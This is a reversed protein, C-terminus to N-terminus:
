FSLALNTSHTVDMVYAACRRCYNKLMIKPGLPAVFHCLNRVVIEGRNLFSNLLGFLHPCFMNGLCASGCQFRDATKCEDNHHHWPMGDPM